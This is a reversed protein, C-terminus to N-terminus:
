LEINFGAAFTPKQNFFKEVRQWQFPIHMSLSISPTRTGTKYEYSLSLGTLHGIAVTINQHKLMDLKQSVSFGLRLNSDYSFLNADLRSTFDVKLGDNEILPKYISSSVQGIIPTYTMTFTNNRYLKRFGFSIGGAKGQPIYYLECGFCSTNLKGFLMSCGVAHDYTSVSTEINVSTIPNVLLSYAIDVKPPNMATSGVLTGYIGKAIRTSALFETANKLSWTSKLFYKEKLLSYSMTSEELPLKLSHHAKFERNILKDSQIYVGISKNPLLIKDSELLILSYRDVPLFANLEEM